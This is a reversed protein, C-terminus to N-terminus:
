LAAARTALTVRCRTFVLILGDAPCHASALPAPRAPGSRTGPQWHRPPQNHPPQRCCRTRATLQGGNGLWQLQQPLHHVRKQLPMCKVLELNHWLASPLLAAAPSENRLARARAGSHRSAMCWTPSTARSLCHSFAKSCWAAICWVTPSCADLPLRARCPARIAEAGANTHAVPRLPGQWARPAEHVTHSSSSLFTDKKLVSSCDGQEGGVDVAETVLGLRQPAVGLGMCHVARIHVHQRPQSGVVRVRLQKLPRHRKEFRQATQLGRYASM